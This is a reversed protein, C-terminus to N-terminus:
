ARAVRPAAAWAAAGLGAAEAITTDCWAEPDAFV